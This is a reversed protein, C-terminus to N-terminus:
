IRQIKNINRGKALEDVVKDLYRIEKMMPEKIEEIQVGCIKGTILIRKENLNPAKEFFDTVTLDTQLLEELQEGTYGTLWFIVQNLEEKTRNKREIKTQYLVYLNRFSMLYVSHAM